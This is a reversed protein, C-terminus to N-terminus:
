GSPIQFCQSQTKVRHFVNQFCPKEFVIVDCCDRSEGSRTEVFVIGFHATITVNKTTTHVSFILLTKLTFGVNKFEEPTTHVFGFGDLVMYQILIPPPPTFPPICIWWDM